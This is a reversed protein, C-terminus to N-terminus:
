IMTIYLIHANEVMVIMGISISIAGAVIRFHKQYRKFKSLSVSLLGTVLVMGIVSGIGFVLIFGLSSALLVLTASGALGHILGIFFSGKRVSFFSLIGFGVLMVGVLFELGYSWILHVSEGLVFFLGGFLFLMLAHGLGWMLGHKLTGETSVAALHDPELAHKIGLILGILLTHIM